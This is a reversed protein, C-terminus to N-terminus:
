NHPAYFGIFSKKKKSPRLEEFLAADTFSGWADWLPLREWASGSCVIVCGSFSDCRFHYLWHFSRPPPLFSIRNLESIPRDDTIMMYEVHLNIEDVWPIYTRTTFSCACARTPNIESSQDLTQNIFRSVVALNWYIQFGNTRFAKGWRQLVKASLFMRYWSLLQVQQRAIASFM